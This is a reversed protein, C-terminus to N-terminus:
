CRENIKQELQAMTVWGLGRVFLTTEDRGTAHQITFNEVTLISRDNQETQTIKLQKM